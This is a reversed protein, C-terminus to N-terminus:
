PNNNVCNYYEQEAANVADTFADIAADRCDKCAKGGPDTQCPGANCQALAESLAQDAAEVDDKWKDFCTPM